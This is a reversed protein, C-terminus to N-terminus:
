ESEKAKEKELEAVKSILQKRTDEDASLYAVLVDNENQGKPIDCISTSRVGNVVDYWIWQPKGNSSKQVKILKAEVGKLMAERSENEYGLNRDSKLLKNFKIDFEAYPNLITSAEALIDLRKVLDVRLVDSSKHVANPLSYQISMQKIQESTASNMIINRVKSRIREKELFGEDAGFEDIFKFTAMAPHVANIRQISGSTKSNAMDPFCYMMYFLLHIDELGAKMIGTFNIKRPLYEKEGNKGLRIDKAYKIVVRDGNLMIDTQPSIVRAQPASEVKTTRVFNSTVEKTFRKSDGFTFVLPFRGKFDEKITDIVAKISKEIDSKPTILNVEEGNVLIM